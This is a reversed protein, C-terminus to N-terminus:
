YAMMSFNKIILEARLVQYRADQTASGPASPTQCRTDRVGFCKPDPMKHRSGWLVQPRADQTASGVCAHRDGHAGRRITVHADRRITVM